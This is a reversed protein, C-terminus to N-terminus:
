TDVIRSLVSTKFMVKPDCCPVFHWRWTRGGETVGYRHRRDDFDEGTIRFELFVHPHLHYADASGAADVCTLQLLPFELIESATFQFFRIFVHLPDELSGHLQNPVSM